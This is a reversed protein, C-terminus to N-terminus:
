CYGCYYQYRNIANLIQTQSFSAFHWKETIKCHIITMARNAWKNWRVWEQNSSVTHITKAVITLLFKITDLVSPDKGCDSIVLMHLTVLWLHLTSKHFQTLVSICLWSLLLHVLALISICSSSMVKNPYHLPVPSMLQLGHTPTVSPLIQKLILKLLQVLHLCCWSMCIRTTRISKKVTLLPWAPLPIISYILTIIDGTIIILWLVMYILSLMTVKLLVSTQQHFGDVSLATVVHSHSAM